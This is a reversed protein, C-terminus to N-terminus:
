TLLSLENKLFDYIEQWSKEYYKTTEDTLEGYTESLFYTDIAQQETMGFDVVLSQTIADDITMEKLDAKSFAKKIMQLSKHTCLAIQHSVSHKFKLEELFEAKTIGGELYFTIRTAIDDNAVPGEIIDYDHLNDPSESARNMVVFDLWEESYDNFQLVNMGYSTYAADSFQFETVVGNTKNQRGKRTAWYEAQEQLKTVYFGRGFDRNIASKSLDIEIIETYSGHYVKM